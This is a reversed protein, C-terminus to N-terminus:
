KRRLALDLMAKFEPKLPGEPFKKDLDPSPPPLTKSKEIRVHIWEKWRPNDETGLFTAFHKLKRGEKICDKVYNVTATILADGEGDTKILRKFRKLADGKDIKLPYRNWAEEFFSSLDSFLDPIIQGCHKCKNM